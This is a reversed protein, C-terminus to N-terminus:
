GWAVADGMDQTSGARTQRKIRRRAASALALIVGAQGVAILPYSAYLSSSSPSSSTSSSASIAIVSVTQSAQDGVFVEAKAADYAL